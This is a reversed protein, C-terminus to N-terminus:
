NSAARLRKAINNVINYWHCIKRPTRIVVGPRYLTYSSHRQSYYHSLLSIFLIKLKIFDFNQIQTLLLLGLRM